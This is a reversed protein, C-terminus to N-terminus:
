VSKYFEFLDVAQKAEKVDHVRLIKAGNQLAITNLVTTGNLATVPSTHIVKNIMSKRSLGALLPYDFLTFENLHKLLQYNHEVTKGFGFGVDIILKDFGLNKCQEIKSTYFMSIDKVVDDYSPNKQMNQTTGQMNMLVYAIQHKSVVDLMSKDMQSGSIDNIIDAGLDIAFEAVDALYTDISIFIKPFEKRLKMLPERLRIIEDKVSIALANPRSSAAGIDIITAGEHIKMEADKIIDTVSSFKGGDYFSDPTINIIAMVQAKEFSLQKGNTLYTKTM